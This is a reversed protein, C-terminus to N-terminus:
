ADLSWAMSSWRRAPQPPTLASSRTAPFATRAGHRLATRLCRVRLRMAGTQGEDAPTKTPPGVSHRRQHRERASVGGRGRVRSTGCTAKPAALREAQRIAESIPRSSHGRRFASHTVSRAEPSGSSSGPFRTSWPPLAMSLRDRHSLFPPMSIIGSATLSAIQRSNRTESHPSGDIARARRLVFRVRPSPEAPRGQDCGDCARRAVIVNLPLV